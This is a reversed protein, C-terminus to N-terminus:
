KVKAVLTWVARAQKMPIVQEIAKRPEDNSYRLRRKRAPSYVWWSRRTKLQWTFSRRIGCQVKSEKYDQLWHDLANPHLALICAQLSAVPIRVPGPM